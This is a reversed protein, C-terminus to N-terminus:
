KQCNIKSHEVTKPLVLELLFQHINTVLHQFLGHIPVQYSSSIKKSVSSACILMLPAKIINPRKFNEGVYYVLVSLNINVTSAKRNTALFKMPAPIYPAVTTPLTSKCHLLVSFFLLVEMIYPGWADKCRWLTIHLSSRQFCSFIPRTQSCYGLITETSHSPPSVPTGEWYCRM